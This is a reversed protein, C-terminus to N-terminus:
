LIWGEIIQPPATGQTVGPLHPTPGGTRAQSGSKQQRNAPRCSGVQWSAVLFGLLPSAKWSPDTVRQRARENSARRAMSGGTWDTRLASAGPLRPREGPGALSADPM